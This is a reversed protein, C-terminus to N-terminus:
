VPLDSFVGHEDSKDPAHGPPPPHALSSNLAGASPVNSGRNSSGNSGGGGNSFSSDAFAAASSSSKAVSAAQAELEDPYYRMVDDDEASIRFVDGTEIDEMRIIAECVFECNAMPQVVEEWHVNVGTKKKKPKNTPVYERNWSAEKPGFPSVLPARVDEAIQDSARVLNSNAGSSSSSSPAEAFSTRTPSSTSAEM